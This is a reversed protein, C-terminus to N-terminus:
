DIIFLPEGESASSGECAYVERVTGSKPAAIENEMKMAELICLIQGAQVKDGRKAKVSLVRGTMPAVVAGEIVHKTASAKKTPTSTVPEFSTLAPRNLATKLEAKFATEEVKVTFPKDRDIKPLEIQYTKGDVNIAFTGELSLRETSLEVNVPKDDVTITFFDESTKTLKVKRPKGDIFVEYTSM